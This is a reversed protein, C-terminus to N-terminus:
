VSASEEEADLVWVRVRITGVIKNSSGKRHLRLQQWEAGETWTATVGSSHEAAQADNEEGGGQKM